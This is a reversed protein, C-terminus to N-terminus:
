FIFFSNNIRNELSFDNLKTNFNFSIIKIIITQPSVSLTFCILITQYFITFIGVYNVIILQYNNNSYKEYIEKVLNKKM